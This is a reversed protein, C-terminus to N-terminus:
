LEGREYFADRPVSGYPPLDQSSQDTRQLRPEIAGMGVESARCYTLKNTLSCSALPTGYPAIANWGGCAWIACVSCDPQKAPDCKTYITVGHVCLPITCLALLLYKINM